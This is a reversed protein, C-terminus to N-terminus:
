VDAGSLTLFLMGLSVKLGINALLFTKYFFRVRELKNKVLCDAIVIEFTDLHCGNIKQASFDFKGAYFGLETIYVSYM